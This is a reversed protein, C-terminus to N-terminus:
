LGDSGDGADKKSADTAAGKGQAASAAKAQAAATAAAQAADPDDPNVVTAAKSDGEKGGADKFAKLEDETPKRIAGPAQENLYALEEATLDVVSGPQIRVTPAVQREIKQGNYFEVKTVATGRAVSIQHVATRLPM